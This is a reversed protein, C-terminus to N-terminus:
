RGVGQIVPKIDNREFPQPDGRWNFDNVRFSFSGIKLVPNYRVSINYTRRSYELVYDTSIDDGDNLNLSAQVGGRFPGYIQQTIGLALTQQDVDRDFLFPSDDVKTRVSYTANFGTYDFFPRSFHGFQGQIGVSGRLSHQGDGNSYFSSVGSIGTNFLIYPVVPVPTYRLGGDKTPPLSKGQWISFSKGLFAAGQYRTLNTRDNDSNNDLLRPDDTDANINQISGQYRLNIGTKGLLINPSTIVGGISNQVTQFGLSGNFLRERFNYELSLSHPSNINGILQTATAKARINDELKNVDFSTFAIKAKLQTRPSLVTNFQSKLGFAAANFVGGEDEGAFDFANPNLARQIFYQPTIKWTINERDIIEWTREIYFGGREEGDFGFRFLAPRRPRSDFVLSNKLLPLSLGDDFVLRSKTTTLKNVLPEIEQFNATDARLELEPPSFPDNTISINEAQWIDTEFELKEAEFRVRNITGAETINNGQLIGYDKINGVSIGVQDRATVDTVPQNAQISDSLLRDPITRDEPLKQSLDEGITSRDIQGRANTVVGRDQVLYYELRDGGLVQEGRKLVVNGEAVAIRDALNVQIRDSILIAQSFRMLVNGEATVVQRQEDYEQRDAIVEVVEIKEILTPTAEPITEEPLPIEFIRREGERQQTILHLHKQPRGPLTEAERLERQKENVSATAEPPLLSCSIPFLKPKKTAPSGREDMAGRTAQVQDFSQPICAGTFGRVKSLDKPLSKVTAQQKNDTGKLKRLLCLQQRLISENESVRLASNDNQEIVIETSSPPVCVPTPFLSLLIFM